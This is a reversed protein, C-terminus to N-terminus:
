LAALLRDAVSMQSWFVVVINTAFVISAWIGVPHTGNGHSRSIRAHNIV